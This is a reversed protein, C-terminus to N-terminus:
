FYVYEDIFNQFLWRSMEIGQFQSLTRLNWVWWGSYSWGEISCFSVVVPKIIGLCEVCVLNRWRAQSLGWFSSEFGQPLLFFDQIWRVEENGQYYWFWLSHIALNKGRAGANECLLEYCWFQFAFLCGIWVTVLSQDGTDSDKVLIEFNLKGVSESFWNWLAPILFHSGMPNSSSDGPNPVWM